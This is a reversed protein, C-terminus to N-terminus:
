FKFHFRLDFLGDLSLAVKQGENLALRGAQIEVKLVRVVLIRPQGLAEDRHAAVLRGKVLEVLAPSRALQGIEERAHELVFIAM